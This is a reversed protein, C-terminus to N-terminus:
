VDRGRASSPDTYRRRIGRLPLAYWGLALSDALSARPLAGNADTRARYPRLGRWAARYPRPGGRGWLGNKEDRLSGRRSPNDRRDREVECRRLGACIEM